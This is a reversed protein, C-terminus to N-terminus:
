TNANMYDLVKQMRDPNDEMYGLAVNCNHCLLGRVKGTAHDHDVALMKVMKGSSRKTEPQGCAACVGDQKALMEM